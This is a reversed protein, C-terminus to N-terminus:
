LAEVQRQRRTVVMSIPVDEESDISASESLFLERVDSVAEKSTTAQEGAAEHEELGEVQVDVERQKNELATFRKKNGVNQKRCFTAEFPM